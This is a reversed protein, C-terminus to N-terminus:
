NIAGFTRTHNSLCLKSRFCDVFKLNDVAFSAPTKRGPIVEILVQFEQSIRGLNITFLQWSSCFLSLPELFMNQASFKM